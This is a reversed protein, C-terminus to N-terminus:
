TGFVIRLQNSRQNFCGCETEDNQESNKSIHQDEHWNSDTSVQSTRRVVEDNIQRYKEEFLSMM